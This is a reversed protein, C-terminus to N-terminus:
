EAPESPAASEGTDAADDVPQAPEDAPGEAPQAPEATLEPAPREQYQVISGSGSIRQSVQPTGTYEVRGSGSISVDLRDSVSVEANGSGSISVTTDASALGIARYTAGGSITLEQRRAEGTLDFEGSGSVEARLEDAHLELTTKGSGSIAVMFRDTTLPTDGVLRGSGSMKVIRLEPSTVYLDVPGLPKFSLITDLWKYSIILRNGQVDTVIKSLTESDAEIRLAPEPGQSYHITGVGKLEIGDFAHVDREQSEIAM